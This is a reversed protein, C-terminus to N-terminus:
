DTWWRSLYPYSTRSKAGFRRKQVTLFTIKAACKAMELGKKIDTIEVSRVQEFQGSSVGDRFIMIQVPYSGNVKRFDAIAKTMVSGFNEIIRGYTRCM